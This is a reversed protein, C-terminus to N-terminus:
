KSAKDNDFKLGQKTKTMHEEMPKYLTQTETLTNGTRDYGLHVAGGLQNMKESTKYPELM